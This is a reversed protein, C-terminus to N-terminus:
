AQEGVRTHILEPADALRAIGLARLDEPGGIQAEDIEIDTGAAPAELGAAEIWNRYRASLARRSTAPSEPASANKVPSYEDRDAEVVVVSRAAPLADFVFRELKLGNPAEPEVPRGAADVTPIKKHSAHYPLWREAESAIRRVFATAFTHIAMNGAGFLLEGDAGRADRHEGDIETYEVVGPRGNVLALVGLKQHPDEKHMVKCGMDADAEAHFGLLVPDGLPV